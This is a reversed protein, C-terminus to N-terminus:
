DNLNGNWRIDVHAAKIKKFNISINPLRQNTKINRLPWSHAFVKDIFDEFGIMWFDVSTYEFILRIM